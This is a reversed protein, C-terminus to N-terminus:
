DAVFFLRVSIMPMMSYCVRTAVSIDEDDVVDTKRTTREDSVVAALLSATKRKKGLKGM